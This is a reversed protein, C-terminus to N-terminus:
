RYRVINQITYKIAQFPQTTLLDVGSRGYYYLYLDVM